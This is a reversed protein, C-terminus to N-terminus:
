PIGTYYRGALEELSRQQEAPTGVALGPAVKQLLFARAPEIGVRTLAYDHNIYSLSAGILGLLLAAVLGTRDKGATCHFLFPRNPQDRAHSFVARISAQYTPLLALYMQSFSSPPEESASGGNQTDNSSRTPPTWHNKIGPIEPDPNANHEKESRLDFIDTIGLSILTEKGQDTLQELSGSRFMYGQKFHPETGDNLDRVNILGPVPIFPDSVLISNVVTLDIPETIPIALM